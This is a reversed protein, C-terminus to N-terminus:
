TIKMLFFHKKQTIQLCQHLIDDSDPTDRSKRVKKKGKKPPVHDSKLSMANDNFFLM